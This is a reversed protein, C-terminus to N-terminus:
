TQDHKKGVSNKVTKTGFVFGFKEGTELYYYISLPYNLWKNKTSSYKSEFFMFISWLVQFNLNKKLAFEARVQLIYKLM